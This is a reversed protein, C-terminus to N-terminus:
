IKKVKYHMKKTARVRKKSKTTINAIRVDVENTRRLTNKNGLVSSGVFGTYQM